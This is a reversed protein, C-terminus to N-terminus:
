VQTLLNNECDSRVPCVPCKSKELDALCYDKGLAVLLAHYEKYLAVDVPLNREFLRQLDQYDTLKTLGIRGIIRRTYADIVFIPQGGAYLLISDATEPGIGKRELLLQRLMLPPVEFMAMVDGNWEDILWVVFAKLRATKQRFYGSPRILEALQDDPMEALAVPSLRGEDKLATIAKEVNTWATNQTLIAGVMVEFPGDGPWWEQPGFCEFLRSYLDIILFLDKERPRIGCHGM